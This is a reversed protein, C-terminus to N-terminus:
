DFLTDDAGAAPAAAGAAMLEKFDDEPATGGGFPTDDGMFLINGLGFSVGQNGSNDYCYPNVRAHAWCGSYFEEDTLLRDGAVNVIKPKHETSLRVFTTNKYGTYKKTNGDRFPNRLGEPPGTIVEGTEPDTSKPWPHANVATAAAAKMLALGKATEEAHKGGMQFLAVLEFKPKYNANGEQAKPTWKNFTHAFAVQFIPTNLYIPDTKAM